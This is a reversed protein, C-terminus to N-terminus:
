KDGTMTTVEVTVDDPCRDAYDDLHSTVGDETIYGCTHERGDTSANLVIKENLNDEYVWGGQMLAGITTGVIWGSLCCVMLFTFGGTDSHRSM